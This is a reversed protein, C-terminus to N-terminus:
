NHDTLMSRRQLIKKKKKTAGAYNINEESVLNYEGAEIGAYDLVGYEGGDLVLKKGNCEFEFVIDRNM